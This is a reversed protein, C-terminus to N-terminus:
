MTDHQMRHRAPRVTLFMGFGPAVRHLYRPVLEPPVVSAAVTGGIGVVLGNWPKLLRVYGAQLKGTTFISTPYAHAHLAEAPMQLVELRGFWSHREDITLSSEAMVANTRATFIEGPVIEPGSDLGYAFTTAWLGDRGFPRHYTASATARNLSARHQPPFEEEADRLHAASVQLAWRDTPMLTLRGSVSDLRALDLDTRDADPERGNFLSMEIKWRRDYLGTTILGFSLHTSDLWHHAIPAIPNPLASIRHPFGVPGLAPEGALGGYIQWRLLGRVPRDYDAAIEMFLDHPHQRDHITDGDCFEGTALFSLYGCGPITWPEVSVTGRLGLRGRGVPRRAAIMGWNISGFQRTSNGGTRHIDGPEYIFQAFAVGHLMAEWAGWKLRIGYMPTEDPLWATGSAERSPFLVVSTEDVMHQHQM